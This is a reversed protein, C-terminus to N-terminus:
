VGSFCTNEDPSAPPPDLGGPGACGCFSLCSFADVRLTTGIPWIHSLPSGRSEWRRFVFNRAGAVVHEGCCFKMTLFSM